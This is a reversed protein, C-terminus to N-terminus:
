RRWDEADPCTSHHPMHLPGADLPPQSHVIALPAVGPRDVLEVNGGDAPKADVPMLKGRTTVAWIIDANCSRCHDTM